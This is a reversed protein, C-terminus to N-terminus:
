AYIRFSPPPPVAVTSPLIYFLARCCVRIARFKRGFLQVRVGLLVLDFLELDLTQRHFISSFKNAGTSVERMTGHDAKTVAEFPDTALHQQRYAHKLMASKEPGRELTTVSATDEQLRYVTTV